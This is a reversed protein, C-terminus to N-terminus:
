GNIFTNVQNMDKYGVSRRVEQGNELLILTPINKINYQDVWQADYDVDVEAIQIGPQKKLQSITPKMNQCSPCWGATFYMLQKM